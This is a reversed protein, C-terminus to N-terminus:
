RPMLQHLVGIMAEVFSGMMASLVAALLLFGTLIALPV